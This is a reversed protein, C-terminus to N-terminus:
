NLELFGLKGQNPDYYEGKSEDPSYAIIWNIPDIGFHNFFDQDSQGNMYNDLFSPMIHHTTVPLRDTKERNLAKLFREKSTM